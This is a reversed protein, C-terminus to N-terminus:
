TKTTNVTAPYRPENATILPPYTPERISVIPSCESEKITVMPQYGLETVSTSVINPYASQRRIVMPLHRPEYVDSISRFTPEGM